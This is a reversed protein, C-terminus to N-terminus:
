KAEPVATEEVSSSGGLVSTLLRTVEAPTVELRLTVRSRHEGVEIQELLAQIESDPNLEAALMVLGHLFESIDTASETNAFDLSARLILIQGNQSLSMGVLQLDKMAEQIRPLSEIGDGLLPFNALGLTEQMLDSNALGLELRILGLGLDNFNDLIAGSLRKRDGDQVDIVARVAERTGLVLNEKGLLAMTLGDPDDEPSYLIRGKYETTALDSPSANRLASILAIEDFTGLAIAGSFEEGRSLDTFFSLQSLQRWDVGMEKVAADLLEDLTHPGDEDKPLGDIIISTFSDSALMAGVNAQGILTSGEPVLKVPDSEKGGRCAVVLLSLAVALGALLILRNIRLPSM